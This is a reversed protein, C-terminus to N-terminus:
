EASNERAGRALWSDYIRYLFDYIVLEHAPQSSTHVFRNIHMHAFTAALESTRVLLKGTASLERLREVVKCIAGSRDAFRQCALNFPEDAVSANKLVQDLNHREARFKEGLRRKTEEGARFKPLHTDRRHGVFDRREALSFGFDSFLKDVGLLALQWRLAAGKDDSLSSLISLVAESDACFIDEAALMGETGGYREIEREYTDFQIKWIRGSDLLPNFSVSVLALLERSLSDSRTQFRIRLHVHPDTYRVFFWRSMLGAAYARELLPTAARVLVDDLAAPGGYLKVYLWESGPPRTRILPAAPLQLPSTFSRIQQQMATPRRVFPVLLEHHFRGEAGSICLDEPSPYMEQLMAEQTRKLTHIFADVSLVNDLDVPLHQDNLKLVIWRPLGRRQRWEQVALFCLYRDGRDIKKIEQQSLRWRALALIVRGVRLRPLTDLSDLSGWSFVPVGRAGQHQLYCLFRYVSPLRPNMYGHANTLRPIVRRSLRQSYLVIEGGPTVSVLLDSAPIQQAPSAGSRGLYTIEYERLVPRYLVNGVRGEPLHVIEAYVADVDQAEEARLHRRVHESLEPDAHCFRGLLAAGPPGGVNRIVVRFEGKRLAVMSEAVLQVNLYFAGALCDSAASAEPLDAKELALENIGDACQGVVRRLLLSKFEAAAGDSDSRGALNIGRLIPPNAWGPSTGFGLGSEEDVVDLLPVWAHEYRHVFADRFTSIDEPESTQGVRSLLDVASAMEDIAAKPLIGNRFPKMMDVQFLRAVDVEAPLSKLDDALASYDAPSARLGEEDLAVLRDKVSRLVTAVHTGSPLRSLQALIDDLPSDGTVLPTLSPVLIESQILDSVYAGAEEESVEDPGDSITQLFEILEAFRRGARAREIVKQLYDDNYVKVLHHSRRSGLGRSEVYHWVDGIRHLSANPWFVLEKVLASDNRLATTLAFLYDFDLRSTPQYKERCELVLESEPRDCDSEIHGVSCGSFLGFPTSRGCMRAFYRVLSREAQLGKKSDPATLWYKVSSSLSPSAIFLAQLIEPREIILRLKARLLEVEARWAERPIATRDQARAPTLGSPLESWRLFDDMPLLPTRLVFFGSHQIAVSPHAEPAVKKAQPNESM